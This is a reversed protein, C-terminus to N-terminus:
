GLSQQPYNQKSHVYIFTLTSFYMSLWKPPSHQGYPSKSLNVMSGIQHVEHRLLGGGESLGWGKGIEARWYSLSILFVLLCVAHCRSLSQSVVLIISCKSKWVVITVHIIHKHGPSKCKVLFTLLFTKFNIITKIYPTMFYAFFM